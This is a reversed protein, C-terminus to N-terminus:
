FQNKQLKASLPDPPRCSWLSRLWLGLDHGETAQYKQNIPESNRFKQDIIESNRTIIEPMKSGFKQYGVTALLEPGSLSHGFRSEFDSMSMEM